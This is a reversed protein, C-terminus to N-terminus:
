YSFNIQATFPFTVRVSFIHMNLLNFAIFGARQDYISNARIDEIDQIM